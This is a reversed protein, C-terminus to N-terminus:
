SKAPISANFQSSVCICTKCLICLCDRMLNSHNWMAMPGSPSRGDGTSLRVLAGPLDLTVVCQM